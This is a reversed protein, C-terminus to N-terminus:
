QFRLEALAHPCHNASFVLAFRSLIQAYFGLYRGCFVLGRGQSATTADSPSLGSVLVGCESLLRGSKRVALDLKGGHLVTCREAAQAGALSKITSIWLCESHLHAYALTSKSPRLKTRWKGVTAELTVPEHTGENEPRGERGNTM